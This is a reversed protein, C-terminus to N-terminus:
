SDGESTYCKQWEQGHMFQTLDLKISDKGIVFVNNARWLNPRYVLPVWFLLQGLPTCMWGDDNLHSSSTYLALHM